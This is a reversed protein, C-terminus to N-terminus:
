APDLAGYGGRGGGREKEQKTPNERRQEPAPRLGRRIDRAASRVQALRPLQEILPRPLVHCGGFYRALKGPQAQWAQRQRRQASQTLRALAIGQTIPQARKRRHGIALVPGAPLHQTIRGNISRWDPFQRRPLQAATILPQPPQGAVPQARRHRDMSRHLTILLQYQRPIPPHANVADQRRAIPLQAIAPAALLNEQRPTPMAIELTQEVLQPHRSKDAIAQRQQTQIVLHHRDGAKRTHLTSGVAAPLQM